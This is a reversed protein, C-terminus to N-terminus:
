QLDSFEDPEPCCCADLPLDCGDCWDPEGEGGEFDDPGLANFSRIFRRQADSTVVQVSVSLRSM